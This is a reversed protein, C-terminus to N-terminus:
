QISSIIAVVIEDLINHRVSNTNFVSEPFLVAPLEKEYRPSLRVQPWM